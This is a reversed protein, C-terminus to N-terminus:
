CESGHSIWYIIALGSLGAGVVAPPAAGGSVNLYVSLSVVPVVRGLSQWLYMNAVSCCKKDCGNMWGSENACHVGVMESFTHITVYFLFATELTAGLGSLSLVFLIGLVIDQFVWVTTSVRLRRIKSSPNPGALCQCCYITWPVVSAWWFGVAIARAEFTWPSYVLSTGLAIAGLARLVQWSRYAVLPDDLIGRVWRVTGESVIFSIEDNDPSTKSSHVALPIPDLYLFHVCAFALHATAAISTVWWQELTWGIVATVTSFSALLYFWWMM